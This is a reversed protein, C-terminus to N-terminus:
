LQRTQEGAQFFSGKVFTYEISIAPMSGISSEKFSAVYVGKESPPAPPPFLKRLSNEVVDQVKSMAVEADDGM